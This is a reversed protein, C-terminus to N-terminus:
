ASISSQCCNHFWHKTIICVIIIIIIIIIVHVELTFSPLILISRELQIQLWANMNARSFDITIIVIIFTFMVIIITIVILIFMFRTLKKLQRLACPGQFALCQYFIGSFQDWIDDLCINTFYKGWFQHCIDSGFIRLIDPEFSWWSVWDLQANLEILQAVTPNKSCM